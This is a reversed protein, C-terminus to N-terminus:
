MRKVISAKIRTKTFQLGKELYDLVPWRVKVISLNDHISDLYNKMYM